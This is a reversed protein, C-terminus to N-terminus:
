SSTDSEDFGVDPQEDISTVDVPRQRWDLNMLLVGRWRGDWVGEQGYYKADIAMDDEVEFRLLPGTSNQAFTHRHPSDAGIEITYQGENLTGGPIICESVRREEAVDSSDWLNSDLSELVEVGDGTSLILGIRPRYLPGWNEWDIFVRIDESAGFSARADGAEGQLGARHIRVPMGGPLQLPPSFRTVGVDTVGDLLYSSVQTTAPGISRVEGRDLWMVRDCLRQIASLNHSVFLVTRGIRSVERMKDLCKKQFAADGVALVEDVVLIEPELHAAVAFALRMYMGSSYRKVPTDLFSPIGAFDVIDDFKQEIENKRMGLIAGNLFVNERGTLEPHFGTGVELLSGVRGRVDAQGITPSTIRSLIKLLTTKGAGNRGIIGLTEGEDIEFSVDRLAWISERTRSRPRRFSFLSRTADSLSERLTRYRVRSGIEYRKSIGEARIAPANM